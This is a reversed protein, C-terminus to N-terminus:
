RSATTELLAAFERMPLPRSFFCGQMEDCGQQLLLKLQEGTEVGEAVVTQGLSQALAIILAAITAAPCM